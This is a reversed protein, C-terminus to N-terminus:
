RFSAELGAGSLVKACYGRVRQTMAAKTYTETEASEYGDRLRELEARVQPDAAIARISEGTWPVITGEVSVCRLDAWAAREIRGRLSPVQAAVTEQSTRAALASLASDLTTRQEETLKSADLTKLHQLTFGDGHVALSVIAASWGADRPKMAVDYLAFYDKMPLPPAAQVPAAVTANSPADDLCVADSEAGIHQCALSLGLSFLLATRRM